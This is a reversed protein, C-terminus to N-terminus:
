GFRDKLERLYELEKLALEQCVACQIRKNMISHERHQHLQWEFYPTAHCGKEKTDIYIPCGRCHFKWFLKCLPCNHAGEDTAYNDILIRIWKKISSDIAKFVRKTTKM